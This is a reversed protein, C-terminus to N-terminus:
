QYNAQLQEYREYVPSDPKIRRGIHELARKAEKRDTPGVLVVYDLEIEALRPDSVQFRNRSLWTALGSAGESRAQDLGAEMHAPMGPLKGPAPANVDVRSSNVSDPMPERMYRVMRSALWLAGLIM